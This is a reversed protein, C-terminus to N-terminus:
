GEDWTGAANVDEHGQLKNSKTKNHMCIGSQIGSVTRTGRTSVKGGAEKLNWRGISVGANLQRNSVALGWLPGEGGLYAHTACL